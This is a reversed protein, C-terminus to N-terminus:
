VIDGSQGIRSKLWQRLDSAEEPTCRIEADVPYDTFIWWKRDFRLRFVGTRQEGFMFDSIKKWPTISYRAANRDAIASEPIRAITLRFRRCRGWLVVSAIASLYLWVWFQLADIWGSLYMWILVPVALAAIVWAHGWVLEAFFSPSGVSDYQVCGYDNLRIQILGPHDSSKRRLLTIGIVLVTIGGFLALWTQRRLNTGSFPSMMTVCFLWFVSFAVRGAIKSRSANGLNAHQGMAWGYLVIEHAQPARGCEPCPSSEALGVLSYGCNPCIESRLSLPVPSDGRNANSDTTV